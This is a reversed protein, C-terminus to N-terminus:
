AKVGPHAVRLVDPEHQNHETEQQLPRRDEGQQHKRDEQEHVAAQCQSFLTLARRSETLDPLVIRAAYRTENGPQASLHGCRVIEVTSTM